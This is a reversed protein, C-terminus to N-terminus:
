MRGRDYGVMMTLRNLRAVDLFASDAIGLNLQDDKNFASLTMLLYVHKEIRQVRVHVICGVRAGAGCEM